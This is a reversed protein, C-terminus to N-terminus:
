FSESPSHFGREIKRKKELSPPDTYSLPRPPVLGKAAGRRRKGVGNAGSRREGVRKGRLRGELLEAGRLLKPGWWHRRMREQNGTETLYLISSTRCPKYQNPEQQICQLLFAMWGDMWRRNCDNVYVNMCKITNTKQIKMNTKKIQFVRITYIAYKINFFQFPGSTPESQRM